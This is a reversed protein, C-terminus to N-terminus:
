KSSSTRKWSRDRVVIGTLVLLVGAWLSYPTIKHFSSLWSPETLPRSVLILEAIHAIISMLIITLGVHHLTDVIHM